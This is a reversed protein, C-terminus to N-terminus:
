SRSVTQSRCWVAAVNVGSLPLQSARAQQATSFLVTESKEPNIVLGNQSLWLQVAYLCNQLNNVTVCMDLKTIAVYLQTDDEYQQHLVDYNAAINKLPSIYVIFFLPGPVSGQPVGCLCNTAAYNESGVRVFQTRDALYTEIWVKALGTL